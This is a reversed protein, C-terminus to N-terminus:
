TDGFSFRSFESRPIAFFSSIEDAAIARFHNLLRSQIASLSGAKKEPKPPKEDLVKSIVLCPSFLQGGSRRYVIDRLQERSVFEPCQRNAKCFQGGCLHAVTQCLGVHSTMDDAGHM